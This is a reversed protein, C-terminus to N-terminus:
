AKDQHREPEGWLSDYFVNPQYLTIISVGCLAILWDSVRTTTEQATTRVIYLIVTISEIGAVILLSPKPSVLFAHIHLLLFRSWFVALLLNGGFRLPAGLDKYLEAAYRRVTPM